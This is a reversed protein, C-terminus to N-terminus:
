HACPVWSGALLDSGAGSMDVDYDYTLGMIRSSLSRTLIITLGLTWRTELSRSEDWFLVFPVIVRISSM